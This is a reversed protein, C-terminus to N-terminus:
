RFTAIVQELNGEKVASQLIFLGNNAQGFEAGIFPLEAAGLTGGRGALAHASLDHVVHTYFEDADFRAASDRNIWLERTQSRLSVINTRAIGAAEMDAASREVVRWGQTREFENLAVRIADMRGQGTMVRAAMLRRLDPRNALVERLYAQMEDLSLRGTRRRFPERAAIGVGRLTPTRGGGGRSAGGGGGGGGAGGGGRRGAAAREAASAERALDEAGERWAGSTLERVTTSTLENVGTRISSLMAKRIAIRIALGAAAVGVLSVLKVISILDLPSVWSSKVGGGETVLATFFLVRGEPNVVAQVSSDPWLGSYTAYGQNTYYTSNWQDAYVEGGATLIAQLKQGHSSTGASRAAPAAKLARGSIYIDRSDFWGFHAIVTMSHDVVPAATRDGFILNSHHVEWPTAYSKFDRDKQSIFLVPVPKKDYFQYATGFKQGQRAAVEDFVDKRVVYDIYPLPAWRGDLSRNYLVKPDVEAM